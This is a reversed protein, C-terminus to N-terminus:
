TSTTRRCVLSAALSSRTQGFPRAISLWRGNRSSSTSPTRVGKGPGPPDMGALVPDVEVTVVNGSGLRASLLAANWGTGTGVELVRTGPRIDAHGLMSTVVSPMSSSSTPVTGPTPGTHTGDDWQTTIATDTAAWREWEGPDTRRDVSLHRGTDPDLPWMLDPLFCARPTADFPEAWERALVGSALLFRGLETHAPRQPTM